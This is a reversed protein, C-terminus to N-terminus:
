HPRDTRSEPSDPRPYSPQQETGPPRTTSTDNGSAANEATDTVSQAVQTAKDKVREYGESAMTKARQMAQESANGLLDNEMRTRPLMAGLAAGIAIGLSGAILPQDHFLNGVNRTTDQAGRRVRDPASGVEDKMSSTMNSVRAATDKLKDKATDLAGKAAGKASDIANGVSEGIRERTSEGGHESDSRDTERYDGTRFRSGAYDYDSDYRDRSRYGIEDDYDADNSRKNSMILWSIGIATFLLPVPNQKVQEGLNRGFEGGHERVMQLGEDLLEGPSLRNSLADVTRGLRARAEDAEHELREPSKHDDDSNFDHERESM